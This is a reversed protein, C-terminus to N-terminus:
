HSFSSTFSVDVRVMVGVYYGVRMEAGNTIGLSRILESPRSHRCSIPIQLVRVEPAFTDVVQVTLPEPLQLFLVLSFQPWPLPTEQQPIKTGVAATSALTTTSSTATLQSAYRVDHDDDLDDSNRLLPTEEDAIRPM